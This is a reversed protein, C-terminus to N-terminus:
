APLSRESTHDCSLKSLRDLADFTSSIQAISVGFIVMSTAVTAKADNPGIWAMRFAYAILM